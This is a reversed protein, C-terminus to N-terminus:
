KQRLRKRGLALALLSAGLLGLTGPEPVGQSNLSFGVAGGLLAIEANSAIDHQFGAVPGQCGVADQVNTCITSWDGFDDGNPLNNYQKLDTTGGNLSFCATGTDVFSRTTSGCVYRFLDAAAVDSNPGPTSNSECADLGTGNALCSSTGLVEDTEHEVISYFDYESATQTGTRFWLDSSTGNVLVIGDYCGTSLGNFNLPTCSSFTPATSGGLNTGTVGDTPPGLSPLAYLLSNTVMVTGTGYPNTAPLSALGPDLPDSAGLASLYANYSVGYIEHLSEGLSVAANTNIAIYINADADSFAASYIPGLTSNLTACSVLAAVSPDCTYTIAGVAPVSAGILALALFAFKHVNRSPNM